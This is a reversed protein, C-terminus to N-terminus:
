GAAGADALVARQDRGEVLDLVRAPAAPQGRAHDPHSRHQAEHANAWASPKCARISTLCADLDGTRVTILRVMAEDLGQSLRKCRM